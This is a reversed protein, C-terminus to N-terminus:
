RRATVFTYVVFAAVAILVYILGRVVNGGLQQLTAMPRVSVPESQMFRVAHRGYGGYIELLRDSQGACRGCLDALVLAGDLGSDWVLRRREGRARAAGCVDCAEARSVSVGGVPVAVTV